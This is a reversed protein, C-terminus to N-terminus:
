WGKYTVEIALGNEKNISVNTREWMLHNQKRKIRLKRVMRNIGSITRKGSLAEYVGQFGKVPYVDLVIKKDDDSWFEETEKENLNQRRSESAVEKGKVVGLGNAKTLMQQWTYQPFIDKMQSATKVPYVKKFLETEEETWKARM